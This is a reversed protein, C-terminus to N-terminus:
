KYFPSLKNHPTFSLPECLPNIRNTVPYIISIIMISLRLQFINRLKSNKKFLNLNHKKLVKAAGPRLHLM